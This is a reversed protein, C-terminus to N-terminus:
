DAEVGHMFADLIRAYTGNAKIAMLGRDFLALVPAKQAHKAFALHTSNVAAPLDLTEIQDHWGKRNLIQLLSLEDAVICDVRKSLLKKLNAENDAAEEVQILGTRRASDFVEGYSWGRNVGVRRGALDVVGRYRFRGGKRVCVLLTETFLPESYDYTQLRELNQYIGGIGAKGEQGLTLARKWPFGVVEVATGTQRFAARIIEPYLGKAPTTGYMYPPYASDVVIKVPTVQAPVAGVGTVALAALLLIVAFRRKM